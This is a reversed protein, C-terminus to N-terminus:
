GAPEGIPEANGSRFGCQAGCLDPSVRQKGTERSQPIRKALWQARPPRNQLEFACRFMEHFLERHSGYPLDPFPQISAAFTIWPWV